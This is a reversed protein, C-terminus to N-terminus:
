CRFICKCKGKVSLVHVKVYLFRMSGPTSPCSTTECKVCEVKYHNCRILKPNEVITSNACEVLFHISHRTSYRMIQQLITFTSFFIDFSVHTFLCCFHLKFWINYFCFLFTQFSLCFFTFYLVYTVNTVMLLRSDIRGQHTCTSHLVSNSLKWPSSCTQKLGWGLRLESCLTIFACLGLLGFWSLKSVGGQSDRSLFGNPHLHWPSICLVGSLPPPPLLGM